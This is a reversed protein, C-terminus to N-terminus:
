VKKQYLKCQSDFTEYNKFEKDHTESEGLILFGHRELSKDFLKFVSKKLEEDFYIIVNRCFIIQFHNVVDDTTLNHEFFLIKSKIFEKVEVFGKHKHFYESFSEEAGSAYYHRMFLKFSEDSYLGNKAKKLITPNLDTAYIISRELLGLEHLLIAVSYPEEGSSCGACWIKISPYSDLKPIIDERLKKYTHPNRFFTTVNISIDLFLKEFASKNNLVLKQLVSLSSIDKSFCFHEIRRLIHTKYYHRYDYGYHQLIKELFDNLEADSIKMENLLHKYIYSLIEDLPLIADYNSTNIASNLMMKAECEDPDEIIIKANKQKLSNLADSGDQGYGCLLICLLESSYEKALSEFLVSVSPKSYHVPTDDLLFIYGGSVIMHKGPPAIYITSPMVKTDNQALTAKFHPTKNGVLIDLNSKMDSRKHIVIFISIDSKPLNEVLTFLKELSGASGGIAIYEIKEQSIQFDRKNQLTIPVSLNNFYQYFLKENTSICLEGKIECIRKIVDLPPILINLFIIEYNLERDKTYDLFSTVEKKSMIADILIKVSNDKKSVAVSV